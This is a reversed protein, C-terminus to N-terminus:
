KAHVGMLAALQTAIPNLDLKDPDKKPDGDWPQARDPNGLSAREAGRVDTPSGAPAECRASTNFPFDDYNIDFDPNRKKIDAIMKQTSEYGRTCSAPNGTELVIGFRITGDPSATSHSSASLSSLMAFTMGTVYSAPAIERFTGGLQGILRTADDGNDRLFASLEGAARPGDRLIRRVAPDAAALQATVEDLGKSWELIEDSQEDQTELVHRSDTILSITEDLSDVGTRSLKDLSDVLRTLNDGQGNFAKGLETVVTRLDDVPITETLDITSAIVDQTKPPIQVRSRPIQSGDVLFPGGSSTPQLDVYQEGIASRNAVVATSSAPIRDDDLVLEVDVGGPVLSLSAVRGAHVGRYTVEADTFIGGSDEMHVVVRYGSVGLAQDMRAYRFGAYLSAAVGLIVVVIIQLKVLRSLPPM